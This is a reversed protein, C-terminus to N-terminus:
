RDATVPTATDFPRSLRAMWVRVSIVAVAIMAAVISAKRM